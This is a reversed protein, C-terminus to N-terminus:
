FSKVFSNTANALWEPPFNIRPRFSLPPYLEDYEDPFTFNAEYVGKKEFNQCKYCFIENQKTPKFGIPKECIECYGKCKHYNVM